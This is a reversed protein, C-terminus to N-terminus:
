AETAQRERAAEHAALADRDRGFRIAAIYFCPIAVASAATMVLMMDTIPRPRGMGSFWDVMYGGLTVSIGLGIVNVSLIFLAVATARMRAPVLEQITAYAAGYMAALQFVGSGVGLWFMWGAHDTLRYLFGIPTFILLMIAVFMPRGQGTTKLWWDGLLGGIINGAVGVTAYMLAIGLFLPGMDLHLEERYWLTDFQAGGVAFHLGVGGLITLPLAPSRKMAGFLEPLLSLMGRIAIGAGGAAGRRHRPDPQLALVTALAVGAVGTWIFCWRWGIVPGLTAALLFALGAGLPVGAYYAGSAFGLSRAPFRDALLSLSTPTITAEGVGILVRPIALSVFGRALGSSATLISWLAVGVAAFRPRHTTDAILGMVPSLIGYLLTFAIGSLLGFQANTLHLDAKIENAFTPLLQRDLINLVNLLMLFFLFGYTRVSVVPEAPAHEGVPQEAASAQAM